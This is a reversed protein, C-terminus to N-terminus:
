YQIAEKKLCCSKQPPENTCGKHSLCSNNKHVRVKLINNPCTQVSAMYHWGIVWCLIWSVCIPLTLLLNFTSTGNTLNTQLHPSQFQVMSMMYTYHYVTCMIIILIIQGYSGQVDCGVWLQMGHCIHSYGIMSFM